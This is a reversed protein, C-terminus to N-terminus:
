VEWIEDLPPLGYRPAFEARENNIYWDDMSAFAEVVAFGDSERVECILGTTGVVALWEGSSEGIVFVDDPLGRGRLFVNQEVVEESYPFCVGPAFVMETVYIRMAGWRRWIDLVDEPIRVPAAEITHLIAREDAPGVSEFLDPRLESDRQLVENM